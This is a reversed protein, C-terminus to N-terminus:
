FGVTLGMASGGVAQVAFSQVQKAPKVSIDLVVVNTGSAKGKPSLAYVFNGAAALDIMGPNTNPLTTSQLITGGAPDIEVIHNVAVDTVFATKTHPSFTAWCTAAQNAIKTHTLTTLQSKPSLALTTAGFSADTALLTPPQSHPILVSGFLVATNAPTSRIDKKAPCGNADIPLVSVFGTKNTAPNGKVTTILASADANFLAHSVTNTPGIPPTTQGLDFTALLSQSLPTLGTKSIRYCAVGAKAGSNAVCALSKKASLTVTNPFDGFTSVPAGIPTLTTASGASIGFLSVTNSGANVAILM